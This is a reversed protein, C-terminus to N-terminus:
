AEATVESRRRTICRALEVHLERLMADRETKQIIREVGGNLRSRDDETLDRSTVVVIALAPHVSNYITRKAEHACRRYAIPAVPTRGPSSIAARHERVSNAGAAAVPHADLDEDAV